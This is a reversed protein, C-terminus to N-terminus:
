TARITGCRLGRRAAAYVPEICAIPATASPRNSLDPDVNPGFNRDIDAHIPAAKSNSPKCAWLWPSVGGAGLAGAGDADGAAAM